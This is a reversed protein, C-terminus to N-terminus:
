KGTLQKWNADTLESLRFVAKAGHRTKFTDLHSESKLPVLAPGMPGIVDSGAIWFVATGSVQDGTFYDQVVTQKLETKAVGLFIEPHMWSRIMCGASCFYFASGDILQVACAFKKYKSVQMACVPCRDPNSIQMAGGEDLPMLGPRPGAKADDALASLHFISFGFIGVLLIIRRIIERNINKVKETTKKIQM